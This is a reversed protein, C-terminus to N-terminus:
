WRTILSHTTYVFDEFKIELGLRENVAVSGGVLTEKEYAIKIQWEDDDLWSFEGDVFFGVRHYHGYTTHDEMGVHPYYFDRLRLREDYTALVSGNGCVIAKPM